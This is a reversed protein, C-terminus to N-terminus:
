TMWEPTQNLGYVVTPEAEETPPARGNGNGGNEGPLYTKGWYDLMGKVNCPNYGTGVWAMVIRAWREVDEEQTGVTEAIVPYWSKAPYRHTGERFAQVAPHKSTVKEPEKEPEPEPAPVEQNEPEPPTASAGRKTLDNDTLDINTLPRNEVPPNDVLPNELQPSPTRPARKEPHTRADEPVPIEHVEFIYRVFQGKEDRERYRTVYGHAELKLVASRVAAIGDTSRKVLDSMRVIWDDPRSLLYGMLGKEKWSMSTDEFITRDIMVFPNDRDKARRFVTKSSQENM